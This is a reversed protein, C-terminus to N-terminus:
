LIIMLYNLLLKEHNTFVNLIKLASKQEETKYRGRLIENLDSKFVNQLKKAEELKTEGSKITKFLEIGNNFDDSRKRFTNGKFYYILYNPNIEDTLEEIEDLKEIVIKEFIEKYNDEHDHKSTFAVLGKNQNM